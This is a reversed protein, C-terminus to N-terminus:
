RTLEMFATEIICVNKAKFQFTLEDDTFRVLPVFHIYNNIPLAYNLTESITVLAYTGMNTASLVTVLQTALGGYYEILLKDYITNVSAYEPPTVKFSSVGQSAQEYVKLEGGWTPVRLSGERGRCDFFATRFTTWDAYTYLGYNLERIVNSHQISPNLYNHYEPTGTDAHDTQRDSFINCGIESENAPRLLLNPTTLSTSGATIIVREFVEIEAEGIKHRAIQKISKVDALSDIAPAIFTNYVYWSKTLNTTFTLKKTPVDIAQIKLIENVSTNGRERILAYGGVEFESIFDDIYIYNNGLTADATLFATFCWLPAYVPYQNASYLSLMFGYVDQFENLKYFLKRIPKYLLANRFEGGASDRSIDTKFAYTLDLEYLM